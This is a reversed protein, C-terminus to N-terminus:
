NQALSANVAVLPFRSVAAALEQYYTPHPVVVCRFLKKFTYKDIFSFLSSLNYM